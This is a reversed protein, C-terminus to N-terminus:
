YSSISSCHIHTLMITNGLRNTGERLQQQYLNSVKRDTTALPLLMTMFHPCLINFNDILKERFAALKLKCVPIATDIDTDSSGSSSDDSSVGEGYTANNFYNGYMCDTETGIGSTDFRLM